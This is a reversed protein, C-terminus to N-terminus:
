AYLVIEDLYMLQTLEYKVYLGYKIIFSHGSFDNLLQLFWLPSMSDDELIRKRIRIPESANTSECLRM